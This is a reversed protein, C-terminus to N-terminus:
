SNHRIEGNNRFLEYNLRLNLLFRKFENFKENDIQYRFNSFDNIYPTHNNTYQM